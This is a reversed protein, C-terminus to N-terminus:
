PINCWTLQKAKFIFTSFGEFCPYSSTPRCLAVNWLVFIQKKAGHMIIYNYLM